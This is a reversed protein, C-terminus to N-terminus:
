PSDSMAKLIGPPRKSQPAQIFVPSTRHMSAVLAASRHGILVSSQGIPQPTIAITPINAPKRTKNPKAQHKCHWYNPASQDNDFGKAAPPYSYEPLPHSDMLISPHKEHQCFHLAAKSQALLKSSSRVSTQVTSAWSDAWTICAQM